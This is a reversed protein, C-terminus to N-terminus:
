LTWLLVAFIDLEPYEIIRYNATNWEFNMLVDEKFTWLAMEMQLIQESLLTSLHWSTPGNNTFHM